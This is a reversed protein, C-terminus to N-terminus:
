QTTSGPQLTQQTETQAWHSQLSVPKQIHTRRFILVKELQVTAPRFYLKGRLAPFFFHQCVVLLRDNLCKSSESINQQSGNTCHSECWLEGGPINPFILQLTTKSKKEKRLKVVCFFFNVDMNVIKKNTVDWLDWLLSFTWPGNRHWEKKRWSRHLYKM